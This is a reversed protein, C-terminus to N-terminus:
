TWVIEYPIEVKHEGQTLPKNINVRVITSATDEWAVYGHEECEGLEEGDYLVAKIKGPKHIRAQLSFRPLTDLDKAATLSVTCKGGQDHADRGLNPIHAVSQMLQRRNEGRATATKGHACLWFMAHGSIAECPYGSYYHYYNRRDGIRALAQLRTFGSAQMQPQPYFKETIELTYAYCNCAKAMRATLTTPQEVIRAERQPYGAAEAAQRAEEALVRQLHINPSNHFGEHIYFEEKMAGGALGHVDVVLGPNLDKVAAWLARGEASTPTEGEYSEYINVDEANHYSDRKSGDPNLCPVILFRQRRLSLHPQGSALWEAFAIATLRGSEESGHTGGVVLVLQKDDNPVRFDTVELMVLERGEFSQGFVSRKVHPSRSVAEARAMVEDYTPHQETREPTSM